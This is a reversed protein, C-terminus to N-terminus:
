STSWEERMRMCRKRWKSGSESWLYVKRAIRADDTRELRVKYRLTVKILRERFSSWGMDGRLAEVATYRPANLALRAVRCQGVELKDIERKNWAIVDMGYMISSVTVSKWVERLVGYKSARMRAVSGLRGVWQNVLSIKENKTKECGNPSMWMGLYKHEQAQKLENEELRWVANCEDESRNVIMVKSKESSFRAGCDRGYGVVVDLLSQLEEASESM